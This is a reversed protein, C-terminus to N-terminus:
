EGINCIKYDIYEWEDDTIGWLERLYEDTYRGEYHILDPIFNFRRRTIDQSVVSQLLLFRVTKTMIYSKYSLAEEETDFAGAVLLSETCCTGPEVIHTNGDYYFGVPKTFDTQGAIPSRPVLFKWKNLIGYPDKVDSPDAYQKGYKQVFWCPIGESKPLYFTRLGFPKSPYVRDSLFHGNAKSYIKRVIHIAKNNRIFTEYENLYRTEENSANGSVNKIKCPGHYDKDYLFYCAGGALGGLGPFVDKYNEYDVLNRIHNSNLMKSRFEDLGRGGSYWRAPIIMVLYHPNLKIAQEVFKQYIPMASSGYGNDSLQYPPNGVLVDFKMNKLEGLNKLHIFEYAHSELGKEEKVGFESYSAGCIKCKGKEDCRNWDHKTIRYRINGEPNDFHTISFPGNPYKSCYLSRRSMLSTLETIAIGFLQKHYIHDLREQLNPYIDKEGEIFRKAAERLFVGSKCAPDLIKIDPNSWIEEPLLDLMQNAVAPPTFVEDSSLDSLCTLVDPKYMQDLLNNAM